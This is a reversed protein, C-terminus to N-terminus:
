VNPMWIKRYDNRKDTWYLTDVEKEEEELKKYENELRQIASNLETEKTDSSVTGRASPAVYKRVAPKELYKQLAAKALILKEWTDDLKSDILHVPRNQITKAYEVWDKEFAEEMKKKKESQIQTIMKDTLDVVRIKLKEIPFHYDAPEICMRIRTSYKARNEYIWDWADEDACDLVDEITEDEVFWDRTLLIDMTERDYYDCMSALDKKIKNVTYQITEM